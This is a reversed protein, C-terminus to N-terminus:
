GNGSKDDGYVEYTIAQAIHEIWVDMLLDLMHAPYQEKEIDIWAIGLL